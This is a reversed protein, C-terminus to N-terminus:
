IYIPESATSLPPSRLHGPGRLHGRPAFHLVAVQILLPHSTSPNRTPLLPDLEFNAVSSRWQSHGLETDSYPFAHYYQITNSCFFVSNPIHRSAGSLSESSTSFLPSHLYGRPAFVLVAAHFLIVASRTLNSTPLWLHAVPFPRPASSSVRSDLFSCDM